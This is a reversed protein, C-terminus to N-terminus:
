RVGASSLAKGLDKDTHLIHMTLWGRLFKMLEISIMAQGRDLKEKFALVDDVLKRHEAKHALAAEKGYQHQEMLQEEHGFHKVTYQVLENLIEALIPKSKGEAMAHNLRNLIKVLAKHDGDIIAIGTLLEPGWTILDASM